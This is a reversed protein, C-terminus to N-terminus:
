NGHFSWAEHINQTLAWPVSRSAGSGPGSASVRKAEPGWEFVSTQHTLIAHKIHHINGRFYFIVSWANDDTKWHHSTFPAVIQKWKPSSIGAHETQIAPSMQWGRAQMQRRVLADLYKRNKTWWTWDAYHQWYLLDTHNKHSTLIMLIGVRQCFKFTYLQSQWNFCIAEPPGQFSTYLFSLMHWVLHQMRSAILLESKSWSLKWM